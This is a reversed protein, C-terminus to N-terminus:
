AREDDSQSMRDNSMGIESQDQWTRRIVMLRRQVTRRTCGLATAVEEDTHNELKLLAIKRSVDDPLAALLKECTDAFEAAFEPTLERSEVSELCIPIENSREFSQQLPIANEVVRRVDRKERTEYQIRRSIKREAITLLLRWFDNRNQFNFRQERVGAFLSNFASVAVDDEDYARRISIPLRKQALNRLRMWFHQFLAPAGEFDDGELQRLWSTVPESSNSATQSPRHEPQTM